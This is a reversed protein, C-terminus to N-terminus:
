GQTHWNFSLSLMMQTRLQHKQVKQLNLGIWFDEMQELDTVYVIELRRETIMSQDVTNTETRPLNMLQFNVYFNQTITPFSRRNSSKLLINDIEVASREDQRSSVFATLLRRKM